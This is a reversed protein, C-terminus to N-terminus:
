SDVGGTHLDTNYPTSFSILQLLAIGSRQARLGPEVSDRTRLRRDCRDSNQAPPFPGPPPAESLARWTLNLRPGVPLTKEIQRADEALASRGAPFSLMSMM